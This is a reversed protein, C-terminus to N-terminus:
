QGSESCILFFHIPDYVDDAEHDNDQYDQSKEAKASASIKAAAFSSAFRRGVLFGCLRFVEVVSKAGLASDGL